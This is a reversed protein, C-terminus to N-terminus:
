DDECRLKICYILHNNIGLKLRNVNKSFGQSVLPIIDRFIKQKQQLTYDKGFLVILDKKLSFPSLSGFNSDILEENEILTMTHM